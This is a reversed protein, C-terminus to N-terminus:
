SVNGQPYKYPNSRCQFCKEFHVHFPNTYREVILEYRSEFQDKEFVLKTGDTELSLYDGDRVIHWGQYTRVEWILSIGGDGNRSLGLSKAHEITQPGDIGDIYNFQEAEVIAFSRYKPM